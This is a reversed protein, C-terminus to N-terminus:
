PMTPRDSAASPRGGAEAEVNGVRGSAGPGAAVRCCLRVGGYHFRIGPDARAQDLEGIMRAQLHADAYGAQILRAAGSLLLDRLYELLVGRPAPGGRSSLIALPTATFDSGGAAAAARALTGGVFPAGGHGAQYRNFRGWWAAIAPQPPDFGFTANDVETCILEGGPRLVRLAERIVPVPDPVHELMWITLVRDFSCGTFPLRCADGRVLAAGVPVPGAALHIAAAGLHTASLDLGTLRLHPWRRGILKLEAGVGCGIELLDRAPDLALGDLVSPALLEAQAVLRAQEAPSFGHIYSRTM